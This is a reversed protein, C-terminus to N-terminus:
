WTKKIEPNIQNPMIVATISKIGGITIPTLLNYGVVRTNKSYANISKETYNLILNCFASENKSFKFELLSLIVLLCAAM